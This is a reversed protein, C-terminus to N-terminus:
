TSLMGATSQLSWLGPSPGSVPDKGGAAEEAPTHAEQSGPDITKLHLAWNTSPGARLPALVAAQGAEKGDRM